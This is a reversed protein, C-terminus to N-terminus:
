RHGLSNARRRAIRRSSPQHHGSTSGSNTSSCASRPTSNTTASATPSSTPSARPSWQSSRHRTPSCATPKRGSVQPPPRNTRNQASHAASRRTSSGTASPPARPRQESHRPVLEQLQQIGPRPVRLRSPLKPRSRQPVSSSENAPGLGTLVPRQRLQRKQPPGPLRPPRAALRPLARCCHLRHPLRARELDHDANRPHGVRRDPNESQRPRSRELGTHPQRQAHIPLLAPIWTHLTRAGPM